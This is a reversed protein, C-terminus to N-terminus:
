KVRLSRRILHTVHLRQSSRALTLAQRARTQRSEQDFLSRRQMEKAWEKGFTETEAVLENTGKRIKESESLLLKMSDQMTANHDMQDLSKVFWFLAVLAIAFENLM